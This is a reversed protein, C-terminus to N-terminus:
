DEGLWVWQKAFKNRRLQKSVVLWHLREQVVTSIDFETIGFINLFHKEVLGLVDEQSPLPTGEEFVLVVEKGEGPRERIIVGFSPTLDGTSPVFWEATTFKSTM